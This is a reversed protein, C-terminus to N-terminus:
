FFRSRSTGNPNLHPPAHIMLVNSGLSEINEKIKLQTGTGINIMVIVACVGIIVGLMTLFARMYNRTIQRIALVIANIFM